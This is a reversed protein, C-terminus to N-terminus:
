SEDGPSGHPTVADAEADALGAPRGLYVIPICGILVLSAGLLAIQFSLFHTLIGALADCGIMGLGYAINYVAYVSAYCSTGRRDVAEALETFTPNLAFGYAVSVTTLLVGVSVLPMPLALLPLTLAMVLLGSAMTPRLGYRETAREVLPPCLGYFLAAIAFLTGATSPRTQAFRALHTPLLPELLGWSGVVVVVILAAIQVAPDRLLGGLDPRESRSRPPDVLLLVRMLADVSLLAAALLFPANWGGWELLFGGAIPGLVSGSNSGVMAIGLMQTRRQRYTQAVLALAATWTAACAAGQVIRAVLALTFSERAMTFLFAALMQGLVGLILPLRRGIRDSIIGLVPTAAILGLAYGGYMIALEDETGGEHQFESTLPVLMAYMFTDTFLAATSVVLATWRLSRLRGILGTEPM